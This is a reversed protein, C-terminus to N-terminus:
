AQLHYACEAGREMPGLLARTLGLLQQAALDFSFREAQHRGLSAMQDRARQDAIMERMKAALDHPDHARFYHAAAGGVEPLSSSWSCLVPCGCAMAELIPLGFGEYVSPYIMFRAASYLASLDRDDVRGIYRVRGRNELAAIQRMTSQCRWGESGAIVVLPADKVNEVARLLVEYDKRPEITSVALIYGATIGFREAVHMTAADRAVPGIGDALGPYVIVIKNAEVGLLKDALRATARSDALVMDAARVSRRLLVRSILRSSLPMTNPCVVGTLDHLSVLRLCTRRLRLPVYHQGWFVQVRDASIWRPCVEQLWISRIRGRIGSDTRLQWRGGPLPVSVPHSAYLFLSVDPSALKLMSSLMNLVYRAIGAQPALLVSVDVGIRIM